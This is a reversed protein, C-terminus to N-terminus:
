EGSPVALSFGLRSALPKLRDPHTLCQWSGDPTELVLGDITAFLSSAFAPLCAALKELVDTPQWRSLMLEPEPVATIRTQGRAALRLQRLVVDRDASALVVVMRDRGWHDAVMKALAVDDDWVCSPSTRALRRPLWDMVPLSYNPRVANDPFDIIMGIGDGYRQVVALLDAQPVPRCSILRSPLVTYTVPTWLSTAPLDVTAQGEIQVRFSSEGARIEDGDHVPSTDETVKRSNVWTGNTSNLDRITCGSAACTFDFHRESLRADSPIAYDNASSRGVSIKTGPRVWMKRASQNVSLLELCAMQVSDYTCPETAPISDRMQNALQEHQAADSDAPTPTERLPLFHTETAVPPPTDAAAPPSAKGFVELHVVFSSQGARVIDGEQLVAFEVREGNVFTGNRSNLDRITCADAVCSLEFHRSSIMADGTVAFDAAETRGVTATQQSILWIQPTTVPGSQHELVVRM